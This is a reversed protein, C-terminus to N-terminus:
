ALSKIKNRCVVYEHNHLKVKAFCLDISVERLFHLCTALNSTSVYNQTIAITDELNVVMHWYGQPVFIVDGPHAIGELPRKSLDPNKREKMHYSWFSLLWEGTSVPVVVDAGDESSKVGPPPNNIPYFIWKKKGTICCNWAHTSNPDIHFISGSRKPGIVLWRYDPRRNEGFVRFLDTCRHSDIDDNKSSFNQPIWWDDQLYTNQMFDREFLYLPAEEAAQEAYQFYQELTFEASLPATASTARFTKNGYAKILYEKSWKKMAPWSKAADKLIVPIKASEYKKYFEDASLNAEYSVTEIDHNCLFGPCATEFDFTSCSWSRYLYNSFMGPVKMPKSPTLLLKKTHTNNKVCAYMFTDKWSVRYEINRGSWTRLMLDRWLEFHNAHVYLAKSILMVRCLDHHTCYSLIDAINEDSLVAIIGCGNARRHLDEPSNCLFSNGSPLCGYPHSVNTAYM